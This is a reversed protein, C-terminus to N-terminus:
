LAEEEEPETANSANANYEVLNEVVAKVVSPSWGKKSQHKWEYKSVVVTATSGNGIAVDQLSNGASDFVKIPITSKCTIYFGKEPKDERKLVTIGFEELAKIANDSLNCLDMTYRKAMENIKNHFSWMITAKVKVPKGVTDM